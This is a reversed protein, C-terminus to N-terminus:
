VRKAPESRQRPRPSRGPARVPRAPRPRAHAHRRSGGRQHACFRRQHRGRAPHLWLGQRCQLVKRNRHD